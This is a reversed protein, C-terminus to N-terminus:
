RFRPLAPTLVRIVPNAKSLEAIEAKYETEFQEPSLRFRPALLTYFSQQQNVCNVFGNVTGGCGDVMEAALAKNSQLFPIGNLLHEMLEDRTRAGQPIPLLDNRRVKAAEFASGLSSGGPLADFGTALKNLQM